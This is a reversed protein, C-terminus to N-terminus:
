WEKQFSTVPTSSIGSWRRTQGCIWTKGQRATDVTEQWICAERGYHPKWPSFVTSISNHMCKIDPCVFLGHHSRLTAPEETEQEEQQEEKATMEQEEQTVTKKVQREVVAASALSSLDTEIARLWLRTALIAFYDLWGVCVCVGVIPGPRHAEAQATVPNKANVGSPM